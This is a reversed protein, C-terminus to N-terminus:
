VHLAAAEDGEEFGLVGGVPAGTEVVAVVMIGAVVVGAGMVADAGGRVFENVKPFFILPFEVVEDVVRVLDSSPYANGQRSLLRAREAAPLSRWEEQEACMTTPGYTETLGYVHIVRFNLEDMRAFLTPSPPAAAVMVTVQQEVRHAKPHNIIMLQVTPAGSFNTM